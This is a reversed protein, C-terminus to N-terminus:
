TQPTNGQPEAGGALKLLAEAFDAPEVGPAQVGRASYFEGIVVTLEHRDLRHGRLSAELEGLM